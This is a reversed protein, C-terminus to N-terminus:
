NIQELAQSFLSQQHEPSRESQTPNTGYMHIDANNNLNRTSESFCCRGRGIPCHKLQGSPILAQREPTQHEEKLTLKEDWKM